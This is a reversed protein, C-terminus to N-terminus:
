LFLFLYKKDPLSLFDEGRGEEKKNERGNGLLSLSVSATCNYIQCRMEQFSNLLWFNALEQRACCGGRWVCM